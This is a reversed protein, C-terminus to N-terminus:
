GGNGESETCCNECGPCAYRNIGIGYGGGTWATGDGLFLCGPEREVIEGHKVNQWDRYWRAIEEDTCGDPDPEFLVPSGGSFPGYALDFGSGDCPEYEEELM